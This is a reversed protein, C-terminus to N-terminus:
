GHDNVYLETKQKPKRTAAELVYEQEKEFISDAQRMVNESVELAPQLRVDLTLSLEDANRLKDFGSKGQRVLAFYLVILVM